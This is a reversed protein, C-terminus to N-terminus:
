ASYVVEGGIVTSVVKTEEIGAPDITFVDNDLTTFDALMGPALVGVADERGVAYASGYTYARVAEAVTVREAPGFDAGASTKRNVLDHISKLPNADSVPSDTSGPVVIGADLLSRMRYTGAARQAGIAAIIGDGFESVFVGQPVPVVGLEACRAVQADTTIAFHEIRHRVTRPFERQAYAFSDLAHDVARDGIAHIAVSWGARHYSAVLDPMQAPDVVMVGTNEPEGCYCEHVAASRGILSGDSVMKVPGLRLRDDGFGTRIGLDLTRMGEANIELGHLVQHFPMLTQRPRLVNGAVADQYIDIIPANLGLAGGLVVGPETLSTLGYAVAQDSARGLNALAEAKSVRASVFQIPDKASEQLLGEALGATDRFVRGGAIDPFGQREPYGALEFARTNAVLMHKSVHELIVPHGNSVRDIAEATPHDGLRNQDYGVGRVWQGAPLEAARKAVAAYVDDLSTVNPYRLDISGLHEGTGMTHHHADHLGPVTVAGGLDCTTRAEFGALDAASEGVALIRGRDVALAGARPMATDGTVFDGTFIADIRM